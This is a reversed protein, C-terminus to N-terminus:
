EECYVLLCKRNIGIIFSQNEIARARLLSDWHLQRISPWNALIFIGTVGKNYLIRFPEPFRLDFCILISFIYGYIKFCGINEGYSYVTSEKGLPLLHIKDYKYLLKGDPSIAVASNLPRNKKSKLILSGIVYCRYSRAIYSLFKITQSNEPSEAFKDPNM